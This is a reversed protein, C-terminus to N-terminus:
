AIFNQPLSIRFIIKCFNIKKVFLRQRSLFSTCMRSLGVEGRAGSSFFLKVRLSLEVRNAKQGQAGVIPPFIPSYFCFIQVTTCTLVNVNYQNNKINWYKPINKKLHRPKIIGVRDKMIIRLRFSMRCIQLHKSKCRMLYSLERTTLVDLSWPSYLFGDLLSIVM